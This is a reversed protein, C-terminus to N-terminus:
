LSRILPTSRYSLLALYTDGDKKMLNKVTQVAREAEGNSQPYRPSSTVHEFQYQRAFAAYAESSYQPSNDSVVVEPIRFRAFMGKTRLIVEEATTRNLLVVEIFRPYYDVILLYSRGKFEFLDTGVRQWPLEPLATTILPESRRNTCKRCVSCHKVLEDLQRSLGPWWLSQRVRERCKFIGQHGIHLRDLMELILAAPIVVRNGRMLLGDKVSIPSAVSYYHKMAGHLSQRSPWGSRCYEAALKCEEDEEQHWRIRELQKEMAPLNQVVINVYAETEQQLLLDERGAESCPARSLADAVLLSKGPVHSITFKFRMMRLRFRQVRIPLEDLNKSGFLPVLPKHDTHIHFEM